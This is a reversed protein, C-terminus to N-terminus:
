DKTMEVTLEVMESGSYIERLKNYSKNTRELESKINELGNLLISHSIEHFLGNRMKRVRSLEGKLGEGIIGTRLLLDERLEQSMDKQFMDKTSTSKKYEDDVLEEVLILTSIREILASVLAFYEIVKGSVRSIKEAEEAVDKIEKIKDPEISDLEDSIQSLEDDITQNAEEMENKLEVRLEAIRMSAIFQVDINKNSGFDIDEQELLADFIRFKRLNQMGDYTVPDEESM